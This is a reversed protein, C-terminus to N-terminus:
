VHKAGEATFMVNRIVKCLIDPSRMESLIALFTRIRKRHSINLILMYLKMTRSSIPIQASSM